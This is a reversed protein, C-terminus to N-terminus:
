KIFKEESKIFELCEGAAHSYFSDASSAIVKKTIKTIAPKLYEAFFKKQASICIDAKEKDKIELARKAKFILYHMFELQCTLSDARDKDPQLGFARYFGMIDALYNAKEFENGALHETVYLWIAESRFLRDYEATLSEREKSLEPFFIFFKEDPYSFAVSLKKYGLMRASLKPLASDACTEKKM